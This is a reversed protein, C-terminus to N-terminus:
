KQGELDHLSNSALFKEIFGRIGKVSRLCLDMGRRCRRQLFLPRSPIVKHTHLFNFSPEIKVFVISNKLIQNWSTGVLMASFVEMFIDASFKQSGHVM